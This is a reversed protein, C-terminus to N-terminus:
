LYRVRIQKTPESLTMEWGAEAKWDAVEYVPTWKGRFMVEVVALPKVEQQQQSGQPKAFSSANDPCRLTSHDTWGGCRQCWQSSASM